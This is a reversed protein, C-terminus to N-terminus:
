RNNTAQKFFIKEKNGTASSDEKFARREVVVSAPLRSSLRAAAAEVMEEALRVPLSGAVSAQVM